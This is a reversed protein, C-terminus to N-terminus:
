GIVEHVSIEWGSCAPDHARYSTVTAGLERARNAKAEDTTWGIHLQRTVTVPEGNEDETTFTQARYRGRMPLGVEARLQELVSM